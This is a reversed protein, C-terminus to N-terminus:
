SHLMLGLELRVEKKKIDENSYAASDFGILTFGQKLYFAIAPVNCSQTELVLMRASKERAVNVAFGMLLNGIGMRRFGEKVLFEWVRMRNNWKEYGLEIWGVQIGDLVAAFVRPEEVHEEFFTGTYSKELPEDLPKLTLAMKWADPEHVISLDYYSSTLYNSNLKPLSPDDRAIKVVRVKDSIDHKLVRNGGNSAPL